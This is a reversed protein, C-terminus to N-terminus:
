KRTGWGGGDEEKRLGREGHEEMDVIRERDDGGTM